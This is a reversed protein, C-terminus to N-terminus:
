PIVEDVSLVISGAEATEDPFGAVRIQYTEGVLAEFSAFSTLLEPSSDDDDNEVMPILADISNGRYVGIMTDFDSGSTSVAVVGNVTSTWSWWVSNLSPEGIQSFGQEDAERTAGINTGDLILPLQGSIKTRQAFSDNDPVKSSNPFVPRPEDFFESRSIIRFYGGNKTVDDWDPYVEFSGGADSAWDFVLHWLSDRAGFEGTGLLYIAEPKDDTGEWSSVKGSYGISEFDINSNYFEGFKPHYGVNFLASDIEKSGDPRELWRYGLTMFITDEPFDNVWVTDFTFETRFGDPMICNHFVPRDMDDLEELEYWKYEEAGFENGFLFSLQAGRFDCSDFILPDEESSIRTMIADTFDCDVFAFNEYRVSGFYAKSLNAGKFSSNFIMEDIGLTERIIAGSLDTNDFDKGSWDGRAMADWLRLDYGNATVTGPSGKDGKEGKDGKLGSDGKDGRLGPDGKDGKLGPDGRDGKDGKLGPNGQDGKDGKIGREGQPGRLDVFDGWSGDEKKLALQAGEWQHGIASGGGESPTNIVWQGGTADSSRSDNFLDIVVKRPQTSGTADMIVVEEVIAQSGNDVMKLTEYSGGDKAPVKLIVRGSGLGTGGQFLSLKLQMGRYGDVSPHPLLIVYDLTGPPVIMRYAGGSPKDGLATGLDYLGPTDSSPLSTIPLISATQAAPPAGTSPEGEVKFFVKQDPSTQYFFTAKEGTAHSILGLPKWGSQQNPDTTSYVTYDYGAQTPFEVKVSHEISLEQAHFRYLCLFLCVFISFRVM